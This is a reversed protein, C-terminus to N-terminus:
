FINTASGKYTPISPRCVQNEEKLSTIDYKVAANEQYPQHKVPNSVCFESLMDFSRSVVASDQGRYQRLDCNMLQLNQKQRSYLQSYVLIWYKGRTPTKGKFQLKTHYGSTKSVDTIKLKGCRAIDLAM